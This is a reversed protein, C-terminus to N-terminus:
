ILKNNTIKRLEKESSRRGIKEIGEKGGIVVLLSRARSFAVYL